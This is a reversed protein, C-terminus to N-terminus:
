PNIVLEIRRNMARGKPTSNDEIPNDGGIGASIIKNGDVGRGRLYEKIAIARAKSLQKNAVSNGTNDTHGEILLNVNYNKLITSLQNIYIKSEEKIKASASFFVVEKFVFRNTGIEGNKLYKLIDNSTLGEINSDLLITKHSDFILYTNQAGNHSIAYEMHNLVYGNKAMDNLFATIAIQNDLDTAAISKGGKQRENFSSYSELMIKKAEGTEYVIQIYADSVSQPQIIKATACPIHDPTQASIFHFSIVLLIVSAYKNM